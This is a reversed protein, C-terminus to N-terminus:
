KKGKLGELYELLRVRHRKYATLSQEVTWARDADTEVGLASTVDVILSDRMAALVNANKKAM